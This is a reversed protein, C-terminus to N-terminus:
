VADSIIIINIGSRTHSQSSSTKRNCKNICKRTPQGPDWCCTDLLDGAPARAVGDEDLDVVAGVALSIRGIVELYAIM